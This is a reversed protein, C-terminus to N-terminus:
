ADMELKGKLDQLPLDRLAGVMVPFTLALRPTRAGKALDEAAERARRLSEPTTGSAAQAFAQQLRETGQQLDTLLAGVAQSRPALAATLKRLEDALPANPAAQDALASLRATLTRLLGALPMLNEVRTRILEVARVAESPVSPQGAQQVAAELHELLTTAQVRVRVAREEFTDLLNGVALAVLGEPGDGTSPRATLDDKQARQCAEMVSDLIGARAAREDARAREEALRDAIEALAVDLDHYPDREDSPLPRGGARVREVQERLERLPRVVRSRLGLVCLLAGLLGSLLAAAAASFLRIRLREHEQQMEEITAAMQRAGASMQVLSNEVEELSPLSATKPLKRVAVVSLGTNGVPARYSTREAGDTGSRDQAPIMAQFAEPIIGGLPNGDPALVVEGEQADVPSTLGTRALFPELATLAIPPRPKQALAPNRTLAAELAIAHAQEQQLRKQEQEVLAAGRYAARKAELRLADQAGQGMLTAQQEASQLAQRIPETAVATPRAEAPIEPASVDSALWATVGGPVATALAVPLIVGGAFSGARTRRRAAREPNLPPMAWSAALAPPLAEETVTADAPQVPSTTVTPESPPPNPPVAETTTPRPPESAPAAQAPVPTHLPTAELTVDQAPETAEPSAKAETPPVSSAAEAPIPPFSAPPFDPPKTSVAGM